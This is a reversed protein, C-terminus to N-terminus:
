INHGWFPFIKVHKIFCIVFIMNRLPELHVFVWFIILYINVVADIIEEVTDHGFCKNITEIRFLDSVVFCSSILTKQIDYLFFFQM